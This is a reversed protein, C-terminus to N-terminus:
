SLSGFNLVARRKRIALLDCLNDEREEHLVRLRVWAPVREGVKAEGESRAKNYLLLSAPSFSREVEEVYDERRYDFAQGAIVLREAEPPLDWSFLEEM